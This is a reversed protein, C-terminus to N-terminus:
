CALLDAATRAGVERWRMMETMRASGNPHMHARARCRPRLVLVPRGARDRAVGGSALDPLLFQKGTEAEPAVEDWTIAEPRYEQRRSRPLM